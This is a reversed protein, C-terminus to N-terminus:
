PKMGVSQLRKEPVFPSPEHEIINDPMILRYGQLASRPKMGVTQLCEGSVPTVSSHFPSRSEVMYTRRLYASLGSPYGVAFTTRPRISQAGARLWIKDPLNLRYGQLAFRSEMVGVSQLRKEPVFPNPEHEVM